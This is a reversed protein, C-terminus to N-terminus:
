QLRENLWIWVAPLLDLGVNRQIQAFYAQYVDVYNTKESRALQFADLKGTTRGIYAIPDGYLKFAFV